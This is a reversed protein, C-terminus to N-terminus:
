VSGGCLPKQKEAHCDASNKQKRFIGIGLIMVSILLIAFDYATTALVSYMM